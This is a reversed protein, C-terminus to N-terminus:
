AIALGCTVGWLIITGAICLAGTSWFDRKEEKPLGASIVMAAIFGVIAILSDVPLFMLVNEQQGSMRVGITMVVQIASAIAFLVLAARSGNRRPKPQAGPPPGMGPEWLERRPEELPMEGAAADDGRPTEGEPAGASWGAPPPVADDADGSTTSPREAAADPDAPYSAPDAEGGADESAPDIEDGPLEAERPTEEPRGAGGTPDSM